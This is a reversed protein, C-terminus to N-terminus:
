LVNPHEISLAKRGGFRVMKTYNVMSQPQRLSMAVRDRENAYCVQGKEGYHDVCGEILREYEAQRDGLHQVAKGKHEEPVELSPDQNHPLWHYNESVGIYHM